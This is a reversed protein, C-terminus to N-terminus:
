SSYGGWDYVLPEGKWIMWNGDADPMSEWIDLLQYKFVLDRLTSLVQSTYKTKPDPKYRKQRLWYRGSPTRGYDLIKAFHQKDEQLTEWFEIERATQRLAWWDSNPRKIDIHRDIKVVFNKHLFIDRCGISVSKPDIPLREARDKLKGGEWFVEILDTSEDFSLKSTEKFSM